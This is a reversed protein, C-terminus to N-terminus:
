KEGHYKEMFKLAEDRSISMGDFNKCNVCLKLSNFDGEIMKKRISYMKDSFWLEDFTNERLNGLAMIGYPDNCCINLMGDWRIVPKYFAAACPTRTFFQLDLEPIKNSPEMIFRFKESEFSKLNFKHMTDIFLRDIEKQRELPLFNPRKIFISDKYIQSAKYYDLRWKEHLYIPHTIDFVDDPYLSNKKNVHPYKLRYNKFEFYDKLTNILPNKHSNKNFFNSWFEIFEVVEDRNLEQLLFQVRVTPLIQMFEERLDILKKINQIVNKLDGGPRLNKYTDDRIADISFTISPLKIDAFVFLEIIRENLVNGNTHIDINAFLKKTEMLLLLLEFIHSFDPHLLSEGFWFLQIEFFKLRSNQFDDMIKRFLGPHMFGSKKGHVNESGMGQNCAPCKLNCIDTLEIQITFNKYEKLDEILSFYGNSM